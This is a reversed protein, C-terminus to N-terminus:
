RHVHAGTRRSAPLVLTYDTGGISFASMTDLNRFTIKDTCPSKGSPYQCPTAYTTEDIDFGYSFTQKSPTADAITTLLNLGVSTAAGTTPNNHHQLTSLLFLTDAPVTVSPPTAPDFGLGSRKNAGGGDAPNGWRADTFGGNAVNLSTNEGGAINTWTPKVATITVAQAATAGGLALAGVLAATHLAMKM